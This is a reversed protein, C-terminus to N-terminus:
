AFSLRRQFVPRHVLPLYVLFSIDDFFSFSFGSSLLLYPGLLSEEMSHSTKMLHEIMRHEIPLGPATMILDQFSSLPPFLSLLTNVKVIDQSFLSNSFFQIVFNVRETKYMRLVDVLSPTYPIVPREKSEPASPGKLQRGSNTSEPCTGQPRQM